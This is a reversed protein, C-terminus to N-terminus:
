GETDVTTRADWFTNWTFNGPAEGDRAFIGDTRVGAPTVGFVLATERDMFTDLIIAFWDNTLSGDDRRLSTARIGAPQAEYMRGAVYLYEDDHAIRFETRESPPAGFVPSSSVPTIVPVALWADEDIRGDLDIPGSLRPVHFPAPQGSAGAPLGAAVVLLMLAVLGPRPLPDCSTPDRRAAGASPETPVISWIASPARRQRVRIIRMQPRWRLRRRASLTLGLTLGLTM